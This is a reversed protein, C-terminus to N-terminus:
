EQERTDKQRKVRTGRTGEQVKVIQGEHGKVREGQIM